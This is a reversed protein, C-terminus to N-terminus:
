RIGQRSLARISNYASQYSQVYIVGRAGNAHYARAVSSFPITGRGVELHEHSIGNNDYLYMYKSASNALFDLLNGNLHANGIDLALPVPGLLNIDEPNRLFANRWRGANRVSFLVGHDQAAPILEKLSRSFQNRAYSLDELLSVYGASFVVHAGVEAALRFREKIEVLSAQRVPEIVSAPNVDKHPIQLAYQYPFSELLDISEIRHRGGDVIEIGRTLAGIHELATGLPENMLCQSSIWLM